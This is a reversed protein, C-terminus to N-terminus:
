PHADESAARKRRRRSPDYDALVKNRRELIAVRQGVYDESAAAKAEKLSKFEEHHSYWAWEGTRPEQMLFLIEYTTTRQGYVSPPQDSTTM